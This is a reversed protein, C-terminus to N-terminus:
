SKFWKAKENKNKPVIASMEIHEKETTGWCFARLPIDNFWTPMKGCKPCCDVNEYKAKSM